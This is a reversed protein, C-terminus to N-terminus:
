DVFRVLFEPVLLFIWLTVVANLLATSPMEQNQNTPVTNAV